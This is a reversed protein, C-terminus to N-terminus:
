GVFALGANLTKVLAVYNFSYINKKDFWQFGRKPLIPIKPFDATKAKQTFNEASYNRILHM